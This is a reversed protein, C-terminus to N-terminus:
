LAGAPERPGGARPAGTGRGALPAAPAAHAVCTSPLAAALVCAALRRVARTSIM